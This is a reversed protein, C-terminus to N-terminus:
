RAKFVLLKQPSKTLPVLGSKAVRYTDEIRIGLHNPIYIGPEITIVMGEKFIDETKKFYLRPQEHIRRGVGHGLTHIFYKRYPGLTKRAAADAAACNGGAHAAREGARKARAVLAYFEREKKTPKGVYVTRTMDSCYGKVRVGFDIIVFGELVADTPKPHISNGARSGSTVIPPFAMRLGRRAIERRIHRALEAETRFRFDRMTAFFIDDTIRCAAAIAILETKTKILAM